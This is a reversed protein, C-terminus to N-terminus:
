CDLYNPYNSYVTSETDRPPRRAVDIVRWRLNCFEGVQLGCGYMLGIMLRDRLTPASEILRTIEGASLVEQLHFPRKPTHIGAAVTRDALKDFVSKTACM